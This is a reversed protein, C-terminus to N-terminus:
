NGDNTNRPITIHIHNEHQYQLTPNTIQHGDRFLGSPGYNEHAVGVSPNNAANQISRVDAAVSPNTEAEIVRLGHVKNIDISEGTYHNSEPVREGNTTASININNAGAAGAMKEAYKQTKPLMAMAMEDRRDLSQAHERTKCSTDGVTIDPGSVVLLRGDSLVTASEHKGISKIADTETDLIVTESTRYDRSVVWRPSGGTSLSDYGFDKAVLSSRGTADVIKRLSKAADSVAIFYVAGKGEAVAYCDPSVIEVKGSALDFRKLPTSSTEDYTRAYLTYNDPAFALDWGSKDSDFRDQVKWTRVESHKSLDYVILSDAGQGVRWFALLLGDPSIAIGASAGKLLLKPLGGALSLQYIGQDTEFYAASGDLNWVPSSPNSANPAELKAVSSDAGNLRLRFLNGSVLEGEAEEASAYFLVNRGVPSPAIAFISKVNAVHVNSCQQGAANAVTM